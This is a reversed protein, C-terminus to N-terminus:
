RPIPQNMLTQIYTVSDKMGQASVTQGSTSVWTKSGDIIKCDTFIKQAHEV